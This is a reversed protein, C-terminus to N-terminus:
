FIAYVRSFSSGNKFIWTEAREALSPDDLITETLIEQIKGITPHLTVEYLMNKWVVVHLAKGYSGRHLYNSLHHQLVFAKLQPSLREL